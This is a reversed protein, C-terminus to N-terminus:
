RNRLVSKMATRTQSIFTANAGLLTERVIPSCDWTGEVYHTIEDVGDVRIIFRGWWRPTHSPSLILNLYEVAGVYYSTFSADSGGYAMELGLKDYFEVARAMDKVALTVASFHQITM